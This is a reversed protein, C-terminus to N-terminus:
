FRKYNRALASVSAALPVSTTPTSWYSVIQLPLQCNQTQIVDKVVSHLSPLVKVNKCFVKRNIM